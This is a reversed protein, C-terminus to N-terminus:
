QVITSSMESVRSTAFDAQQTAMAIDSINSNISNVAGAANKMNDVMTRTAISQQEVASSTDVVIERVSDLSKQIVTLNEAVENSVSQVGQIESSIRDTADAAKSALNKVENAVVAFGKGAEGARASEITANLSLLNIQGAINQILEVIGTMSRTAEVLRKTAEDANESSKFAADTAHRSQLMSDSISTIVTDMEEVSATVAQVSDTTQKSAEAASNSQDSANVMSARIHSLEDDIKQQVETKFDREQVQETIDSAYKIVKFPKGNMDYIPNYTAHIWVEKRDKGLRKFEDEKMHGAALEDWFDSYEQSNAYNDEVFMRHHKGKIEAASYGMAKLFNSNAKIITGDLNFHIVAQAKNIANIQGEFEARELKRKTVDTAFKVIKLVAGNDDTIPIYSAQIWVEKNNKGIRKFEDVYFQGANLREWFTTYEASLAYEPEVFMSHHQGKIEDLDYGMANLFNDNADTIIGECTFHIVAQAMNIANIQGSHEAAILKEKTIDTAFKIIKTVRGNGDLVPNYSAQIWIEKGNKHIRKFEAVKHDGSRLSAWFDSYETSKGYDADVFIRHHQGVIESLRYGMANLFNDNAHQIIGDVNFEIVAQSKELANLKAREDSVGTKKFKNLM